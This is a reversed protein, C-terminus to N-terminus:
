RMARTRARAERWWVLEYFHLAFWVATVFGLAALAPVVTAAPLLGLFAVCAFSRGRSLTRTVRLRIGVFSLLYLASGGCLGLAAIWPLHAGRRRTDGERRLRVPRHRGGDAPPPVLLHRAGAIQQTRQARRDPAGRRDVHLRLLRALVWTAVALGLVAATVVGGSLGTKRAGVGIAVLSEGLAIIIILGYREAFHAAPYAVGIGRILPALLGILVALLWM